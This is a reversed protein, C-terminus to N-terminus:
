QQTVKTTKVLNNHRPSLLCFMNGCETITMMDDRRGHCRKVSKLDSGGRSHLITFSVPPLLVVMKMLNEPWYVIKLIAAVPEAQSQIHCSKAGIQFPNQLLTKKPLPKTITNYTSAQQSLVQSFLVTTVPNHHKHYASTTITLM